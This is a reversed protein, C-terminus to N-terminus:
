VMVLGRGLGAPLRAPLSQRQLQSVNLWHFRISTAGHLEGATQQSTSPLTMSTSHGFRSLRATSSLLDQDAYRPVEQCSPCQCLCLSPQVAHVHHASSLPQVTSEPRPMGKLAHWSFRSGMCAQPRGLALM